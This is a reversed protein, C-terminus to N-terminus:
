RVEESKLIHFFVDRLPYRADDEVLMRRRVKFTKSGQFNM